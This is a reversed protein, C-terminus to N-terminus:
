ERQIILSNLETTM